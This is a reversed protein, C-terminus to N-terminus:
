DLGYGIGRFAEEMMTQSEKEKKLIDRMEKQIRAMEKEYDIDLDRDIFEIYKSPALSYDKERLGGISVSQCLEPIDKYDGNKDQWSHYIKKIEAIQEDTLAVKKKSKNKDIEIVEINENWTRLDMFLVENKRNRLKRGDLEKASKNMNLIWLTVSIDTTYFMDRPLM